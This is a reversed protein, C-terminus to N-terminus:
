PAYGPSREPNRRRLFGEFALTSAGASAAMM